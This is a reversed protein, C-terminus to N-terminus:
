LKEKGTGSQGSPVRLRYRKGSCLLIRAGKQQSAQFCGGSEEERRGIIGLGEWRESDAPSSGTGGGLGVWGGMAETIRRVGVGGGVGLM